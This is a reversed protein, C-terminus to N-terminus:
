KALGPRLALVATGQFVATFSAVDDRCFRARTRYHLIGVGALYVFTAKHRALRAPM